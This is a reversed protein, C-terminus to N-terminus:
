ELTNDLKFIRAIARHITHPFGAKPHHLFVCSNTYSIDMQKAMRLVAEDAAGQQFWVRKIGKELCQPLLQATVRPNTFFIAGDVEPVLDLSPVSVIGDINDQLPNVAVLTCGQAALFKCAGRGFSKPNRSLGIIAFRHYKNFFDKM